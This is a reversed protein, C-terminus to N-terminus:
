ERYLAAAFRALCAETEGVFPEVTPYIFPSLQAIKM